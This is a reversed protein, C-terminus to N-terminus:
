VLKGVQITLLSFQKHRRHVRLDKSQWKSSVAIVPVHISPIQACGAPHCTQSPHPKRLCHVPRGPSFHDVMLRCLEYRKEKKSYGYMTFGVMEGDAYIAKTTWTKEYRSQVLSFANSAVYDEFITKKGVTNTTLLVCEFWNDETIDRLEITM